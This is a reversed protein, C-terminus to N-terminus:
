NLKCNLLIEFNFTFSCVLATQGSDASSILTGLSLTVSLSLVHSFHQPLNNTQSTMKLSYKLLNHTFQVCKNWRYIVRKDFQIISFKLKKCRNISFKM